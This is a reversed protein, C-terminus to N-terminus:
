AVTGNLVGVVFRFYEPDLEAFRAPAKFLLEVGVSLVETSGDEYVKGIYEAPTYGDSNQIEELKHWDDGGLTLEDDGYGVGLESLKKPVPKGLRSERFDQCLQQVNGRELTHAIEHAHVALSNQKSLAVIRLAPSAFARGTGSQLVTIARANGFVRSDCLKDLLTAAEMTKKTIAQPTNGKAISAHKAKGPIVTTSSRQNEPVALVSLIREFGNKRVKERAKMWAKHRKEFAAKREKLADKVPNSITDFHGDKIAQEIDGRLQEGERRLDGNVEDLKNMEAQLTEAMGLVAQRKEELEPANLRDRLTQHKDPKQKDAEDFRMPLKSKTFLTLQEGSEVAALEEDTAQALVESPIFQGGRFDKGAISIGGKPARAVAMRIATEQSDLYELAKQWVADSNLTPVDRKGTRLGDFVMSAISDGSSEGLNAKLVAAVEPHDRVYQVVEDFKPVKTPDEARRLQSVFAGRNRRGSADKGIIQDVLEDNVDNYEAANTSLMGHVDEMLGRFDKIIEPDDVGLTEKIDRYLKSGRFKREEARRVAKDEADFDNRLQQAQEEELDRGLEDFAAQLADEKDQELADKKAQEREATRQTLKERHRESFKWCTNGYQFGPPPNTGAAGCTSAMRLLGRGARVLGAADIVGRGILEDTDLSMRYPNDVSPAQQEQEGKGQQEMAQEALPKTEISFDYAKGFNMLVLPELIQQSLTRCIDALWKDLGAFFAQMPVQKGQWAGGSESTLVDDPIELGRLIEVDLDQPYQLIHQPNNPLTAYNVEWLRQGTRDSVETPYTIVNGSKAQEVMERAIDRNSKEEGSIFSTEAPYGISMGGYADKHMFTRRVDCAGGNMQKDGWASFAGELISRGYPNEAEPSYAHWYCQPMMLKVTGVGSIRTFKVGKVEGDDSLAFTDESYRHLTRDIEVRDNVLRYVVEAASWGWVQASLMKSLEHRWFRDLQREVFKAVEENSSQIGHIWQQGDKYAFEAQMLPAARMALGLRVTSDTLM